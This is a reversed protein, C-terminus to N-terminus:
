VGLGDFETVKWHTRGAELLRLRTEHDQSMAKIWRTENKIVAVMVVAGLVQAILFGAAVQAVDVSM